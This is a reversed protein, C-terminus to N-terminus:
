RRRRSGALGALTILALAGPAPVWSVSNAQWTAGNADKGQMSIQGVLSAGATITFQGLLVRGGVEDGQADSPTVFWTGNDTTLAGGAEFSSWDIGVNNLANGGSNDLLGITVFSEWQLSGVIPFFAPNIDQSTNGGYSSQVFSGGDVDIMLEHSSNGYVADVRAGAELEAYLRYTDGAIAGGNDIYDAVIGLYPSACAVTSAAGASVLIGVSGILKMSANNMELGEGLNREKSKGWVATKPRSCRPKVSLVLALPGETICSLGFNEIPRLNESKHTDVLFPSVM